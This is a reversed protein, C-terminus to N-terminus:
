SSGVIRTHANGQCKESHETPLFKSHTHSHTDRFLVKAPRLVKSSASFFTFFFRRDLFLVPVLFEVRATLKDFNKKEKGSGWRKKKRAAEFRVSRPQEGLLHKRATTSHCNCCCCNCGNGMTYRTTIVSVEFCSCQAVRLVSIRIMYYCPSLSFARASHGLAMSRPLGM